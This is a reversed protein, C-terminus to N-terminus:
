KRTDHHEGTVESTSTRCDQTAWEDLSERTYVIVRPGLKFYRPGDGNVRMTALTQRSLGLYKSAQDTRLYQHESDM